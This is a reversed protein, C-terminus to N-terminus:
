KILINHDFLVEDTEILNPIKAFGNTNAKPATVNCNNEQEDLATFNMSILDM